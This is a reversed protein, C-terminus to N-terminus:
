RGPTLKLQCLSLAIGHMFYSYSRVIPKYEFDGLLLSCNVQGIYRAATTRIVSM